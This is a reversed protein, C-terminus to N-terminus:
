TANPVICLITFIPATGAFYTTTAIPPSTLFYNFSLLMMKPLDIEEPYREFNILRIVKRRWPSRGFNYFIGAFNEM